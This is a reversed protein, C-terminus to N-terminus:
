NKVRFLLLIGAYLMAITFLIFFAAVSVIDIILGKVTIRNRKDVAEIILSAAPMKM